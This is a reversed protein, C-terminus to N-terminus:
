QLRMPEYTTVPNRARLQLTELYPQLATLIRAHMRVAQGTFMPNDLMEIFEELASKPEPMVIIDLDTRNTKGSSKAVYDLAQDLGGIEDALGIKVAARGSWVRGGAIKDVAEESMSRGKAVRKIFAAYVNDLMLNFQAAESESFSKSVSWMDANEGWSVGDWNIGLKESMEAISFKGGIVGISGTLTSANVFIRDANAAIWYGGSAAVPGMSVVVKKGNKKAKELARLISESAAPSGGPSDIRLLITEISDDRSAALIEPAIVSAAAIQSGGFGSDEDSPVIMGVAYILAVKGKTEALKKKDLKPLAIDAYVGLDVIDLAEFDPKGTVDKAIKDVLVDAYDAHTILMEKAAQDATFLGLNVLDLFREKKIGRDAVIDGVIKNRLDDVLKQMMIRNSESMEDNTVSEYATKFDKRKFFEPKIGLKDVGERIFPMELSIGPISVVGLPQMWIEDFASALYYRGLGGGGEGFSSSYIYAFKGSKRFRKIAARLEEVHALEFNGDDMRAMMGKVREDSSARDIANITRSITMPQDAFPDFLGGGEETETFGGKLPLYLVAKDSLTPADGQAGNMIPGIAITIMLLNVMFFFGLVMAFRKLGTWIVPLIVFSSQSKKPARPTRNSFFPRHYRFNRKSM